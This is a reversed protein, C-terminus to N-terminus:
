TLMFMIGFQGTVMCSILFVSNMHPGSMPHTFPLVVVLSASHKNKVSYIPHRLPSFSNPSLSFFFFFCNFIFQLMYMVHLSKLGCVPIFEGSFLFYLREFIEHIKHLFSISFDLVSSASVSCRLLSIGLLNVCWRRGCWHRCHYERAHNIWGFLSTNGRYVYRLFGWVTSM